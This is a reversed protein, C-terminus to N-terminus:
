NKNKGGKGKAKALKSVKAWRKVALLSAQAAPTWPASEVSAYYPKGTGITGTVKRVLDEPPDEPCDDRDQPYHPPKRENYPGVTANYWKVPWGWRQVVGSTFTWRWIRYNEETKREGTLEWLIYDKEWTTPNPAPFGFIAKVTLEVYEVLEVKPYLRTYRTFDRYPAPPQLEVTMPEREWDGPNDGEIPFWYKRGRTVQLTATEPNDTRGSANQASPIRGRLWDSWGQDTPAPPPESPGPAETEPLGQQWDAM